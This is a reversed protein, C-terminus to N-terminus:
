DDRGGTEYQHIELRVHFLLGSGRITWSMKKHTSLLYAAFRAFAAGNLKKSNPDVDCGRMNLFALIQRVKWNRNKTFSYPLVPAVKQDDDSLFLSVAQAPKVHDSATLDLVSLM